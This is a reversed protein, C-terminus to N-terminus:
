VLFLEDYPISDFIGQFFQQGIASITGKVAGSIENIFEKDNENLFENVHDGMQKNGNFLNELNIYTKPINFDLSSELVEAHEGGNKQVLKYDFQYVFEPNVITLNCPGKGQIPLVMIQGDIDYTGILSVQKAHMALMVHLKDFDIQFDDIIMTDLGYIDLNYLAIKLNPGADIQVEPFNMPIMNPIKMQREGKLLHPLVENADAVACESFGPGRHCVKLYSPIAGSIFQINFLFLGICFISPFM